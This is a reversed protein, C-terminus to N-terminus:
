SVRVSASEAIRARVAPLVDRGLREVAEVVHAHPPGHPHRMGFVITNAGARTILTTVLDVMTSVSGVMVRDALAGRLTLDAETLGHNAPFAGHRLYYRFIPEIIPGFTSAAKEDTEAVWAERMVVVHGARGQARALGRYEAAAQATEDLSRIPDAIWGDADFAARRMGQPTWAGVYLPPAQQRGLLPRILHGDLDGSAWASKLAKLASTMAVARTGIDLGFTEFDAPQYGAGVGVVLRGGSALQLQAAQEALRPVSHLPLILVGTGIMIRETKALLWSVLVMPDSLAGPPGGHHEPVLCLDIGHREAAVVEATLERVLRNTDNQRDVMPLAIGFTVHTPTSVM